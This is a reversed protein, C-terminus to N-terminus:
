AGDESSTEQGDSNREDPDGTHGMARALATPRRTSVLWYPTPDGPDAVEIRVGRDIWSRTLLFARDAGARAMAAQWAQPDLPEVHGLHPEALFADGARIRGPEGIVQVSSARWLLAGLTVITILAAAGAIAPRTAVLLIWGIVLGGLLVAVWWLGPAM